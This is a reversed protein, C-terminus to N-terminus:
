SYSTDTDAHFGDPLEYLYDTDAMSGSHMLANQDMDTFPQLFLSGLTSFSMSSRAATSILNMSPLTSSDHKEDHCDHACDRLFTTDPDEDEPESFGLGDIDFDPKQRM